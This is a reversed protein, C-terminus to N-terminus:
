RQAAKDKLEQEADALLDAMSCALAIAICQLVTITISIAGNEALSIHSRHYGISASLDEQSMGCAKRRKRIVSGLAHNISYGHVM